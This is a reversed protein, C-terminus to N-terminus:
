GGHPHAAIWEKLVSDMRTQWGPGTTRFYTLVDPSLRINIPEKVVDKIPRGRKPRLLEAVIEPPFIEPLVERAPRMRAFDERTLERVEGDEDTLPLPNGM